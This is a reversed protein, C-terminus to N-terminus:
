LQRLAEILDKYLLKDKLMDYLQKNLIDIDLADIRIYTPSTIIDIFICNVQIVCKFHDSKSDYTWQFRDYKQMLLEEVMKYMSQKFNSSLDTDTDETKFQDVARAFLALSDIMNQIQNM